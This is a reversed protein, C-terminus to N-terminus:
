LIYKSMFYIATPWFKIRTYMKSYTLSASSHCM